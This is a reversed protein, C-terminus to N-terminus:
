SEELADQCSQRTQCRQYLQCSIPNMYIPCNDCHCALPKPASRTRTPKDKRHYLDMKEIQQFVAPETRQLQVCMDSLGVGTEFMHRLQCREEETWFDGERELRTTRNRLNIIIQRRDESM